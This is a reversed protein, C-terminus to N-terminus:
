VASLRSGPKLLKADEKRTLGTWRTPSGTSPPSAGCNQRLCSTMSPRSRAAAYNPSTKPTTLDDDQKRSKFRRGANTKERTPRPPVRRRWMWKSTTHVRRGKRGQLDPSSCLKSGVFVCAHPQVECNANPLMGQPCLAMACTTANAFTPSTVLEAIMCGRDACDGSRFGSPKTRRTAQLELHPFDRRSAFLAEGAHATPQPRPPPTARAVASQCRRGVACAVAVDRDPFEAADAVQGRLQEGVESPGVCPPERDTTSRPPSTAPARVRHRHLQPRCRVRCRGLLTVRGRRTPRGPKALAPRHGIHADRM